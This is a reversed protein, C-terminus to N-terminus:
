PQQTLKNKLIEMSVMEAENSQRSKYEYLEAGATKASIVVRHPIGLLDADAFKEGPRKDTDDYLVNVGWSQAIDCLEEAKKAVAPDDGILVIYLDYPAIAQPWVLGKDDSCKEAIVGM